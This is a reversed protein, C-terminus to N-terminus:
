SEQWAKQGAIAKPSGPLLPRPKCRVPPGETDIAHEISHKVNKFDAHLISPYKELLKQYESPIESIKEPSISQIAAVQWAEWALDRGSDNTTTSIKSIRAINPLVGKPFKVFQLPTSIQARTDYLYYDDFQGWRFDMKYTKIFDMGLIIETTNTVIMQQHYTKRNIKFEM